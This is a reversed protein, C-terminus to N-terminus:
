KGQWESKANEALDIVMDVPGEANLRGRDLWIARNCQERIRRHNHSAIVLIGSTQILEDMRQAAREQFSPDGAGLWEDMLLIDPEFATACAFKLRM